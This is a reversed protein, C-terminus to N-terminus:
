AVVSQEHVASLCPAASLCTTFKRLTEEGEGTGAEMSALLGVLACNASGTAPDENGRKTFMRAHVDVDDGAEARVYCLIKGVRQLQESGASFAPQM